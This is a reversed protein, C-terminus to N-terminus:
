NDEKLFSIANGLSAFISSSNKGVGLMSSVTPFCLMTLLLRKLVLDVRMKANQAFSCRAIIDDLYLARINDLKEGLHVSDSFDSSSIGLGIVTALATSESCEATM